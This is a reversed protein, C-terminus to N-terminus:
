IVKRFRPTMVIAGDILEVHGLLRAANEDLWRAFEAQTFREDSRFATEM